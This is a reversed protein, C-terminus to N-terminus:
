GSCQVAANTAWGEFLAMLELFTRPKRRLSAFFRSIGPFADEAQALDRETVFGRM